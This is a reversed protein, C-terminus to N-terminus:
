IFTDREGKNELYTKQLMELGNISEAFITVNCEGVTEVFATCSLPNRYKQHTCREHPTVSSFLDIQFSISIEHKPPTTIKAEIHPPPHHPSRRKTFWTIIQDELIRKAM